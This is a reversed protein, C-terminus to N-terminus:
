LLQRLNPGAIEKIRAAMEEQDSLNEVFSTVILEDIDKRDLGDELTNLIRKVTSGDEIHGEQVQAVVYRTLDGFFFDPLLEGFNDKLHEDYLPKLEPVETVLNKIFEDRNEM